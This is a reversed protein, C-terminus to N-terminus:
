AGKLEKVKKAALQLQWTKGFILFDEMEFLARNKLSIYRQFDKIYVPLGQVIANYYLMPQWFDLNIPLVNVEARLDKALLLSLDTIRTFVEAESLKNKFVVAIDIDSEIKPLGTAWSGFLFALEVQLTQAQAQFFLKLSKILTERKGM